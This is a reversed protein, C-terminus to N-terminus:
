HVKANQKMVDKKRRYNEIVNKEALNHHPTTVCDRELDKEVTVRNTACPGCLRIVGCVM